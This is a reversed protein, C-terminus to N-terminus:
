WGGGSDGGGGGSDGGGGFGSDGGGFGGGSFDGGSSAGADGADSTWGGADPAAGSGGAGYSGGSDSGGGGGLSGGGRGGFLENGLFAGGLGGLMGSFFSGGGGGYGGPGYGPPQGYGPTGPAGGGLPMRPATMARIISRLVLFGVVVLVIIWFMSLHFGGTSPANSYAGTTTTRVPATGTNNGPLTNMHSRYIGLVSGVASTVGGDFDGAKFQAEMGSRISALTDTSFWGANTGARDAVIMDARDDKAVYILVGNVAQDTFAKHAAASLTAGGLSPVTMVVIDKHTQANFSGIRTNLDSVTTPSLMAAQDLVFGDRAMAPASALGAMLALAALASYRKM